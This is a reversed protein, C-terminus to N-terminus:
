QSLSATPLPLTHVPDPQFSEYMGDDIWQQQRETGYCEDSSQQKQRWPWSSPQKNQYPTSHTQPQIAREISDLRSLIIDQTELIKNHKTLLQEQMEEIASFRQGMEQIEMELLLPDLLLFFSRLVRSLM